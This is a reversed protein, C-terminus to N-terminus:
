RAAVGEATEVEDVLTLTRSPSPPAESWALDGAFEALGTRGEAALAEALAGVAKRRDAPDLRSASERARVLALELPTLELRRARRRRAVVRALEVGCIGLGALVLLAAAATLGDAFPGPSVAFVPPPLTLGRHFHPTSSAAAAPTLRSVLNLPQWTGLASLRRTGSVARVVVAAFAIPRGRGPPLCADSVCQLAYRYRVTEHRGTRSTSVAPPGTEAYPAFSPDVSVERAGIAARDLEVDVEAVLPDGFFAASPALSTTVSLARGGGGGEPPSGNWWGLGTAVILLVAVGAAAGAAILALRRM